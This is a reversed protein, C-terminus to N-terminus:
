RAVRAQQRFESPTIGTQKKFISSFYRADPYGVREAVEYAPLDTGAMMEKAREVRFETVYEVFSRFLHRRLIKSLYSPSIALRHSVEHISLEMDQYHETVFTRFELVKREALSAGGQTVELLALRVLETLRELLEEPGFALDTIHYPDEGASERAMDAVATFVAQVDQQLRRASGVSQKLVASFDVLLGGSASRDGSKIVQRFGDALGDFNTLALGEREAESDWEYLGSGRALRRATAAQAQSRSQPILPISAVPEGLGISISWGGLLLEGLVRQCVLRSTKTVREPRPDNVLLTVWTRAADTVRDYFIGHEAITALARDLLDNEAGNKHWCELVAVQWWLDPALTGDTSPPEGALLRRIQPEPRGQQDLQKKLTRFLDRLESATIPKLIYDFVRNRFSTRAFEFDDYGSLVLVTIQPFERALWETLELGNIFPMAIDTIVVDPRERVIFDRAERGDVCPELFEFGLEGWDIRTQFGTRILEEDDVMLLKYVAM